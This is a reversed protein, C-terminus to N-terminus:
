HNVWKLVQNLPIDPSLESIEQPILHPSILINPYLKNVLIRGKIGKEELIKFSNILSAVGSTTVFAVSIFYSDCNEFEQIISTLVKSPPNKHNVLLEPHYQEDSLVNKDVFGTQLSKNFEQLLNNM